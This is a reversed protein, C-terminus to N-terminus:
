SQSLQPGRLLSVFIGPGPHLMLANRLLNQPTGRRPVTGPSGVPERCHPSAKSSSSSEASIHDQPQTNM